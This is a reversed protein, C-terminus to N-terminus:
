YIAKSTKQECLNCLARERIKPDLNVLTPLGIQSLNQYDKQEISSAYQNLPM